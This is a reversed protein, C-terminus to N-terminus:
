YDLIVARITQRPAVREAAIAGDRQMGGHVACVTAKNWEWIIRVGDEGPVGKSAAVERGSPAWRPWLAGLDQDEVAASRRPAGISASTGSM